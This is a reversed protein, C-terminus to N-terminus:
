KGLGKNGTDLVYKWEGTENKKWISVYTGREEISDGKITYIGYTYGLEGSQAIDGALPEWTFDIGEASANEFIKMLTPKGVIPMSNERLLVVDDHAFEIFAKNFGAKSATGSFERDVAFLEEVTPTIEQCGWVVLLLFLVTLKKM